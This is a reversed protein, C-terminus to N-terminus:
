LTGDMEDLVTDLGKNKLHKATTNPNTHRLSRQIAPISHGAHALRTAALHRISHFDFVEGKNLGADKCIKHMFRIRNM